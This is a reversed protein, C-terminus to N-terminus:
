LGILPLRRHAHLRDQNRRFVMVGHLGGQFGSFAYPSSCESVFVCKNALQM